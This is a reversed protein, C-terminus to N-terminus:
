TPPAGRRARVKENVVVDGASRRRPRNWAKEEISAAQASHADGM